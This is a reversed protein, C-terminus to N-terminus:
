EKKDDKNEKEISNQVTAQISSLVEGASPPRKEEFPVGLFEAIRNGTISQNEMQMGMIKTVSYGAIKPITEGNELIFKLYDSHQGKKNYVRQLEVSKIEEFAHEEINKDILSKETVLMKKSEKDLSIIKTQSKVISFIGVAVLVISFWVPPKKTFAGPDIIAWLGVLFFVAGIIRPM